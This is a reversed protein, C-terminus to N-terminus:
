VVNPHGMTQVQPLLCRVLESADTDTILLGNTSTHIYNVLGLSVPHARTAVHETPLRAELTSQEWVTYRRTYIKTLYQAIIPTKAASKEPSTFGFYPSSVRSTYTYTPLHKSGHRPAHVITYMPCASHLHAM